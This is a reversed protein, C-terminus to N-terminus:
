STAAPDNAPLFDRDPRIPMLEMGVEDVLYDYGQPQYRNGPDLAAYRRFRAERDERRIMRLHYINHPLHAGVNELNGVIEFPMWYRHLPRPDFKNHSPDNRFLRYRAKGGWIGDIRYHTRDNWLERVQLSYACLGRRDAEALLAAAEGAFRQEIREDADICLFWTAGHRRGAKILAMHNARENWPQGPPNSIVELTKPHTALIAATEDRSGDDLAVIADVAPAVNELWGPLFRAEDRAQLLAILTM